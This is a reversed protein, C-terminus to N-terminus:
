FNFQFGLEFARAADRQGEAFAQGPKFRSWKAFFEIQRWERVALVVDIERGLSTATGAPDNSLRSGPLATSAALQRYRHSYVELSSRELVRAGAGITQVRLNSLEPQLLEGYTQWRKVGGRRSKNEQLGTQVFDKSGRALSATVFPRLPLSPASLSVGLDWATGRRRQESTTGATFSGDDNDEYGTLRDHGRLRATDLWYALRPGADWRWEGSARVGFWTASRDLPDAGDTVTGAADVKSRDRQDLVFVDVAHRPAPTWTLQGLHRTVSRSSHEGFEHAVAADLRWDGAAYRLRLADLDEDWWWARRDIFAIRGAQLSWPTGGIRDFRIWGQGRELGHTVQKGATGETRRTEHLGVAQLMVEVDPTVHTRAELKIEHERVRRDRARSSDIDFNRRREDTYEWSGTLEVPFGAVPVTFAQQPRREDDRQGERRAEPQAAPVGQAQASCALVSLALASLRARPPTNM